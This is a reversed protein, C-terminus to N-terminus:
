KICRKKNEGIIPNEFIGNSLPIRVTSNSLLLKILEYCSKKTEEIQKKLKKNKKKLKNTKREYYVLKKEQVECVCKLQAIQEEQKECMGKYDPIEKDM